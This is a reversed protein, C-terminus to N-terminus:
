VTEAQVEKGKDKGKRRAGGRRRDVDTKRESAEVDKQGRGGAAVHTEAGPGEAKGARQRRRAQLGKSAATHGTSGYRPGPESQKAAAASRGSGPRGRPPQVDLEPEQLAM